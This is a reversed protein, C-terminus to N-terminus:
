GNALMEEIEAIRKELDDVETAKVGIELMTKAASVRSSAPAESDEMISLLTEVAKGMGAQVKVIAHRVLERRAATYARKFDEEDKMWRWLTREGIKIKKAAAPVSPATLLAAIAKEQLRTRKEGHGAM